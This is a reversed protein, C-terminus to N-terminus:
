DLLKKSNSARGLTEFIHLKLDNNKVFIGQIILEIHSVHVKLSFDQSKQLTASGPHKDRIGAGSKKVDRIGSGPDRIGSGPDLFGWFLPPFFIFNTAKGTKSTFQFNNVKKLLFLFFYSDITM